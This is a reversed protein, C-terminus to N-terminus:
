NEKKLLNNSNKGFSTPSEIKEWIEKGYIDKLEYIGPNKSSIIERAQALEENTLTKM